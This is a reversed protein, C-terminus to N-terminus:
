DYPGRHPLRQWGGSAIASIYRQEEAVSYRRIGVALHVQRTEMPTGIPRGKPGAVRQKPCPLRPM